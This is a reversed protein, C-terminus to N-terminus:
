FAADDPLLRTLLRACPEDGKQSPHKREAALAELAEFVAGDRNGAVAFGIACALAGRARERDSQAGSKSARVLKLGESIQGRALAAIGRLRLVATRSGGVVEIAALAAELGALDASGLARRAVDALEGLGHDSLPAGPPSSSVILEDLPVASDSAKAPELPPGLLQDISIPKPAQLGPAPLAAIQGTTLRTVGLSPRKPMDIPPMDIPPVPPPTRITTPPAEELDEPTLSVPQPEFDVEVPPPGLSRPEFNVEVPPPAPSRVTARPPPSPRTPMAPAGEARAFAALSDAWTDLGVKRARAEARSALSASGLHDGALAAHHAGEAIDLGTALRAYAGALATHIRRRTGDDIRDLAAERLSRSSLALLPGRVHLFAERALLSVIEDFSSTVGLDVAAEEIVRRDVWQGATAVLTIMLGHDPRDADIVALRRVIWARASLVRGRGSIKSRAAITSGDRVALEGVALGHRLSELIALPVGAGRRVWRRVVDPSVNTKGGCAEEFIVTAEHPQLPKLALDAEVVLGTLPAPLVDGPDLRAVVAFSVDPVSAAHGIADLTPRDVLSADDILIWAREDLSEGRDGQLWARILDSAGEIDVGQGRTLAAYIEAERPPLEPARAQQLAVRLAGLPEVSCGVPEVSLSRAARVSIEELFRSGGVGAAARVIAVGGPEVAEIMALSAERGVVRPERVQEVQAGGGRRWPESVDLVLGRLRGGRDSDGLTAVRRGIALLSGASAEPCAADVVIEGPQAVRALASARLAGPGVSLREFATDDRLAALHGVGIGVCWHKPHVFSVALEIAEEMGNEEFAFSAGDASVGILNAGLAAARDMAARVETALGEVSGPEGGWRLAM